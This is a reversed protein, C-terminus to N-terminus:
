QGFVLIKTVRKEVAFPDDLELIEHRDSKRAVVRPDILYKTSQFTNSPRDTKSELTAGREVISPLAVVHTKRVPRAKIRASREM